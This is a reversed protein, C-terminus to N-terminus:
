STACPPESDIADAEALLADLRAFSDEWYARYDAIWDTAEKLPAAELHSLRMTGQQTRSVLGARELVRLHRSVAPQSMAFMSTLENVSADGHALRGLIARRTPDALAGFVADLEDDTM